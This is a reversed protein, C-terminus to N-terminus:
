LWPFCPAEETCGLTCKILRNVKIVIMAARFEDNEGGFCYWHLLMSKVCLVDHINMLVGTSVTKVPTIIEVTFRHSHWHNSLALSIHPSQWHFEINLELLTQPGKLGGTM